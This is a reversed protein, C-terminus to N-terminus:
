LKGTLQLIAAIRRAIQSFELVERSELARGLIPCERYSLWKKLVRYGGIRYAWVASPINRWFARDNIHVDFATDGLALSSPARQAPARGREVARGRGPMVAGKAGFYGWGADLAFDDGTMNRGDVTAPVAIAALETRLAGQTVGPVPAEPDLLRVLARGRDAMRAFTDAAGGAKGDPWGPLPIRPWEMRLAGANDERYGPDHLAAVVCAFLDEVGFGLRDLYHRAADSLNARQAGNGGNCIDDDRLWAPIMNAGREILHLSAM